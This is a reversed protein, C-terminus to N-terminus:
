SSHWKNTMPYYDNYQGLFELVMGHENFSLVNELYQQFEPLHDKVFKERFGCFVGAINSVKLKKDTQTSSEGDEEDDFDGDDEEGGGDNEPRESSFERSITQCEHVQVDVLYHETKFEQVQGYQYRAGMREKALFEWNLSMPVITLDTNKDKIELFVNQHISIKDLPTHPPRQARQFATDNSIKPTQFVSHDINAITVPDKTFRLVGSPIMEIRGPQDLIKKDLFTFDPGLKTKLRDLDIEVEHPMGLNDLLNQAFGIESMDPDIPAALVEEVSSKKCNFFIFLNQHNENLEVHLTEIPRATFDNIYNLLGM